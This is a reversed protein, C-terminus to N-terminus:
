TEEVLWERLQKRARCLAVKAAGEKMGLVEAAEGISMGEDYHLQILAATRPALRSVAEALVQRVEDRAAEDRGNAAVAATALGRPPPDDADLSVAIGRRKVSRLANLGVNTAITYLWNRFPRSMDFRDLFRFARLFTEQTLDEAEERNRVLRYLHTYIRSAYREVILGFAAQDGAIARAIHEREWADPTTKEVRGHSEVRLRSEKDHPLRGDKSRRRGIRRSLANELVMLM